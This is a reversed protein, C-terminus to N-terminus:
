TFNQLSFSNDVGLVEKKQTKTKGLIKKEDMVQEVSNLARYIMFSWNVSMIFVFFVEFKSMGVMNSNAKIATLKFNEGNDRLLFVAVFSVPHMM